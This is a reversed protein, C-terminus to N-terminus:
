PSRFAGAVVPPEAGSTTDRSPARPRPATTPPPPRLGFQPLVVATVILSMGALQMPSLRQGLVLWGLSTAVLPSLLGLFTLASVPLRDIGRFWLVYALGTGVVALWAYGAVNVATLGPPPGEVLLTLPLLALGGATLQWGTVTLLSTPRKWRKTLVVGTAMSLTGGLAAAVGVTDLAADPGLVLLGVGGIGLAGAIGVRARLTEDLLLAALSAVVLPQIAGATAAVGGPLRYAALFLLAFFAGINLLGLLASQWWWHGRPLERGHLTILLGIPLARLTAALLPRDAPLWETTVLYTSGWVLPAVAAIVLDRNM